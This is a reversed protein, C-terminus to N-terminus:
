QFKFIFFIQAAWQPGRFRLAGHWPKVPMSTLGARAFAVDFGRMSAMPPVGDLVTHKQNVVTEVGFFVMIHKAM